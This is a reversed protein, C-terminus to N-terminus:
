TIVKSPSQKDTRCDPCITENDLLKFMRGCSKCNRSLVIVPSDGLVVTEKIGAMLKGLFSMVFEELTCDTNLKVEIINKAAAIKAAGRQLGLPSVLIGGVAGTDEIQYALAALKEQNQKSKTYRRCEIIVFGTHSGERVGKAEIEWWTGSELGRIMQKGEVRVLGFHSAFHNLLDTAAKEYGRWNGMIGTERRKGAVEVIINAPQAITTLLM